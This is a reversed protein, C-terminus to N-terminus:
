LFTSALLHWPAIQGMWTLAALIFAVIMPGSQTFYLLKIRNVRDAVAGGVLPLIIMPVAFSLGQLGLWLASNTLQLMLWGVAVNQMWTGINSAILGSWLLAFNRYRLAVFRPPKVPLPTTSPKEMPFM